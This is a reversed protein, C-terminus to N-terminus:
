RTLRAIVGNEPDFLNINLKELNDIAYAVVNKKNMATLAARSKIPTVIVSMILLSFNYFASLM